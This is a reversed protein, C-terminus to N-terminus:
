VPMEPVEPPVGLPAETAAVIEEVTVGPAREVLTLGLGDPRVDLVAM